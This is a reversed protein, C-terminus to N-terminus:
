SQVCRWFRGQPPVTVGGRGCLRSLPGPPSPGAGRVVWALMSSNRWWVFGGRPLVNHWSPEFSFDCDNGAGAAANAAALGQEQGLFAAAHDDVVEAAVGGAFAGVLRGGIFDDLLDF